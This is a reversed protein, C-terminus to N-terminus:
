LFLQNAKLELINIPLHAVELLWTEHVSLTDLIGEWSILSNQQGNRSYKLSIFLLLVGVEPSFNTLWWVLSLSTRSTLCMPNDLSHTKKAWVSWIILQLLRTKSMCFQKSSPLLWAWVRLVFTSPQGPVQVASGSCQLLFDPTQRASSFGQVSGYRSPSRSIWLSHNCNYIRITSSGVLGRCFRFLKISM